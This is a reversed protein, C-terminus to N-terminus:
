PHHCPRGFGGPYTYVDARLHYGDAELAVLDTEDGVKSLRKSVFINAAVSLLMVAVVWGAEQLPEPNKLKDAAEYLIWGASSAAALIFAHMNLKPNPDAYGPVVKM